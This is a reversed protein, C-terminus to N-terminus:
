LAWSASVSPTSLSQCSGASVSILFQSSKPSSTPPFVPACSSSPVLPSVPSEPVSPIVEGVWDILDMDFIDMLEEIYLGTALQLEVEAAPTHAPSGELGEIEVLVGEPISPTAPERVQDSCEQPEPEM